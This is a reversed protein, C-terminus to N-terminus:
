RKWIYFKFLDIGYKYKFYSLYYHVMRRFAEVGHRIRLSLPKASIKKPIMLELIAKNGTWSIFNHDDIIYLDFNKTKVEMKRKQLHIYMYEQTFSQRGKIYRKVRGGEFYFVSDKFYADKTSLESGWVLKINDYQFNIDAYIDYNVYIRCGNHYLINNINCNDDFVTSAKVGREKFLPIVEPFYGEDFLCNEKTKYVFSYNGKVAGLIIGNVHDDNRYLSFHGCTLVKDYQTFIEKPLFTNINGFILDLDCHGWFDYTFIDEKFLLGYLPRLDCLKYPKEVECQYGLLYSARDKIEKLDSKKFTVNPPVDYYSPVIDTYIFFDYDPNSGCSHLWLQFYNPFTGFYPIILVKKMVLFSTYLSVCLRAYM